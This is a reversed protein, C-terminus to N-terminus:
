REGGSATVFMKSERFFNVRKGSERCNRCLNVGSPEAGSHPFSEQRQQLASRCGARQQNEVKTQLLFIERSSPPASGNQRSTDSKAMAGPKHLEKPWMAVEQPSRPRARAAQAGSQNRQMSINQFASGFLCDQLSLGTSVQLGQGAVEEGAFEQFKLLATHLIPSM